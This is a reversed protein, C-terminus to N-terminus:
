RWRHDFLTNKDTTSLQCVSILNHAKTSNASPWARYDSTNGDLLQLWGSSSLSNASAPIYGLGNCTEYNTGTWGCSRTPQGTVAYLFPTSKMYTSFKQTEAITMKRKTISGVTALHFGGVENCASYTEPWTKVNTNKACLWLDEAVEYAYAMGNSCGAKPTKTVLFTESVWDSWDGKADKVRLEITHEGAAYTSQKNKWEAEEISDGDPDTSTEHSWILNTLDNINEKVNVSIVATPKQNVPEPPAKTITLVYDKSPGAGYGEYESHVKTPASEFNFTDLATVLYEGSALKPLVIQPSDGEEVKVEQIYELGKANVTTTVEADKTTYVKYLTAGDVTEWSLKINGNTADTSVVKTPADVMSAWVTNNMDLWFKVDENKPTKRLYKPQFGYVEIIQPNGLTPIEKTPTQGFSDLGYMDVATQINRADSKIATEISEEKFSSINPIVIAALIGLVMIVTLLEILTFFRSNRVTNIIKMHIVGLIREEQYTVTTRSFISM